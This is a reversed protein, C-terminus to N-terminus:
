GAHRKGRENVQLTWSIEAAYRRKTVVKVSTGYAPGCGGSARSRRRRSRGHVLGGVWNGRASAARGALQRRRRRDPKQIRKEQELGQLRAECHSQWAYSDM